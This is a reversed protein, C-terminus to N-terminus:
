VGAAGSLTPRMRAYWTIARRFDQVSGDDPAELLITALEVDERTAAYHLATARKRDPPSM